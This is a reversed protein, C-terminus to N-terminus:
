GWNVALGTMAFSLGQYCNSNGSTPNKEVYYITEGAEESWNVTRYYTSSDDTFSITLLVVVTEQAKITGEYLLYPDHILDRDRDFAFVNSEGHNQIFANANSTNTNEDYTFSTTYMWIAEAFCVPNSTGNVFFSDSEGPDLDFLHIVFSSDSKRESTIEFAYTLCYNTFLNEGKFPNAEESLLFQTEYDTLSVGDSSDSSDSLPDLYGSYKGNDENYNETFHKIQCSMGGEVEIDTVEVRGVRNVAFWAYTGIAMSALLTVFLSSATVIRFLYKNRMM